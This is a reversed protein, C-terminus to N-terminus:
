EEQPKLLLNQDPAYGSAPKLLGSSSVVDWLEKHNKDAWDVVQLQKEPDLCFNYMALMMDSSFEINYDDIEEILKFAEEVFGHYVHAIVYQKYIGYNPFIGFQSLNNWFKKVYLMDSYTYTKIMIQITDENIGGSEKADASLALFLDRVKGVNQLNSYANLVCNQLDVDQKEIDTDMKLYEHIEVVGEEYLRDGFTQLLYMYIERLPPLNVHHSGHLDNLMKIQRFIVLAANLRDVNCFFQLTPLYTDFPIHFYKHLEGYLVWNTEYTKENDYTLVFNHLLHFLDYYPQYCSPSLPIKQTSLKEINPLERKLLEITDGVCEELLMRSALCTLAEVSVQSALHQRIFRFKDFTMNIDNGQECASIILRNLTFFIRPDDLLNWHVSTVKLSQQFLDYALEIKGQQISKDILYKFSLISPEYETALFDKRLLDLFEGDPRVVDAFLSIQVIDTYMESAGPYVKLYPVYLNKVREYIEEESEVPDNLLCLLQAKFKLQESFKGQDKSIFDCVFQIMEVFKSKHKALELLLAEATAEIVTDDESEELTTKVKTLGDSRISELVEECKLIDSDNSVVSNLDSKLKLLKMKMYADINPLSKSITDNVAAQIRYLNKNLDKYEHTEPNSDAFLSEIYNILADCFDRNILVHNTEELSAVTLFGEFKNLDLEQEEQFHLFTVKTFDSPLSEAKNKTIYSLVMPFSSFKLGQGLQIVKVLVLSPCENEPKVFLQTLGLMFEPVPLTPTNKVADTTKIFLSQAVDSSLVNEVGKEKRLATFVNNVVALVEKTVNSDDLQDILALLKTQLLKQRLNSPIETSKLYHKLDHINSSINDKTLSEGELIEILPRSRKYRKNPTVWNYRRPLISLYLSPFQYGSLGNRTATLRRLSNLTLRLM